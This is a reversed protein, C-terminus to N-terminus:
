NSRDVPPVWDTVYKHGERQEVFARLDRKLIHLFETVGGAIRRARVFDDEVYTSDEVGGDEPLYFVTGDGTSLAFRGGGGDAGFVHIRHHPSGSLRTPEGHEAAALAGAASDIFYGNHVDPMSLGDFVRYMAHLEVPVEPRISSAPPRLENTSFEYGFDLKGLEALLERVERAWAHLDSTSM